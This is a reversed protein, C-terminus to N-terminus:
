EGVEDESGDEASPPWPRHNHTSHDEAMNLNCGSVTLNSISLSESFAKLAARITKQDARAELIAMVADKTASVTEPDHGIKIGIKESM